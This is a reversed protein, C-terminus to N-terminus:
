RLTPRLRLGRPTPVFGAEVLADHLPGGLSGALEAGDARHVSLKGLGGDRGVQVLARAAAQLASPEESWSLLSRGGREVYLTLEGDVLVVVAGAGRGPQHTGPTAPWPLAAGYPNAPDTAAMVRVGSTRQDTAHSRLRDVANPVAFQAAGLGEVFYGRRAQGVEEFSALVRYIAGFGGVDEAGVSGRTVVGHRELVALVRAHARRTPDPEVAPRTSWRGSLHAALARAPRPRGPRAYRARPTTGALGRLGATGSALRARVPALTDNTLFGWWLLDWVADAAQAHSPAADTIQMRQVLDRFFLAAGDSLATLVARHQEGLSEGLPAPLVLAADDIPALVLRGDQGPLSGAGTWAVEGAATLEDLMGPRYDAM